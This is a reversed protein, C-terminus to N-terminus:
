EARLAIAPDVRAARRAPIACAFAAVALLVVSVSVLTVPDRPAVGFLMKKVLGGLALSAAVGIALGVGALALGRGLVMALVDSPRAGLSMRVGIEKRRQAVAYSLVGYIGIAALLLALGAFAGLLTAQQSRAALQRDSVEEMTRLRSIPQDKDV